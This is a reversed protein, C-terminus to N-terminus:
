IQPREAPKRGEPALVLLGLWAIAAVAALLFVDGPDGVALLLGGAVGGAFAGLFQASAFVGLSAGRRAEGALLSLRAPLAAELFNLGAFYLALAGVVAVVGDAFWALGVLGSIKLLLAVPMTFRGAKRDDAVILPVTALLSLLMAGVYVQWHDALPMGLQRDLVIPLAVFLATLSAHLVFVYADLRLLPPTLVERFAGPAPSARRRPPVKWTAALLAAAVALVATVLFLARVGGLGAIVPGLMLALLISSGVGAGYIGMSRTRVEPRSVDAVLASLTSSIAGAGQLVRGAIVGVISTSFAALLSGAAFVLLGGLIVPRRGIRDSLSGLPIQLAAQSLGYAGVSLGVLFPTAGALDSAYVSLVPLLAFLGFMRLMGVVAIGAVSRRESALMATATNTADTM